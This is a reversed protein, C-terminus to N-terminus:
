RHEHPVDLNWKPALRLLNETGGVYDGAVFIFPAEAGGTRKKLAEELGEMQLEVVEFGEPVGKLRCASKFHKAEWVRELIGVARESSAEGRVAFVVVGAARLHEDIRPDLIVSKQSISAIMRPSTIHHAAQQAVDADIDLAHAQNLRPILQCNVNLKRLDDYDGIYEGGIFVYPVHQRHTDARLVAAYRRGREEIDLDIIKVAKPNPFARFILDVARQSNGQADESVFLVVPVREIEDHVFASDFDEPPPASTSPKQKFSINKVFQM